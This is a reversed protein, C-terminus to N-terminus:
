LVEAIVVGRPTKFKIPRLLRKGSLASLSARFGLGFQPGTDHFGVITGREMHERYALFEPCRLGLLSDFWAFGILDAPVFDLSSMLHVNVPLGACRTIAEDARVPDIEITDLTGHGNRQLATGIGYAMRGVHTGTEVVYEPQIVRVLASVLEVVENEAAQEDEATWWEPHVCEPHPRTFTSEPVTM